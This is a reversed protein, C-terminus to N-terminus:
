LVALVERARNRLRKKAAADDDTPTGGVAPAAAADRASARAHYAELLMRTVYEPVRVAQIRVAAVINADDIAFAGAANRAVLVYDLERRRNTSMTHYPTTMIKTMTTFNVPLSGSVLAGFVADPEYTDAFFARIYDDDPLPTGPFAQTYAIVWAAGSTPTTSVDPLVINLPPPADRYFVRAVGRLVAIATERQAVILYAVTDSVFEPAFWTPRRLATRLTAFLMDRTAPLYLFAVAAETEVNDPARRQSVIKAFDGGEAALVFQVFRLWPASRPTHQYYNFVFIKLTRDNFFFAHALVHRYVFRAGLTKRALQFDAAVGDFFDLSTRAADNCYYAVIHYVDFIDVRALWAASFHRLATIFRTYQNTATMFHHRDYLAHPHVFTEFPLGAAAFARLVAELRVADLAHLITAAWRHREADSNVILMTNAFVRAFVRLDWGDDAAVRDTHLAYQARYRATDIDNGLQTREAVLRDREALLDPVFEESHLGLAVADYGYAGAGIQEADLTLVALVSARATDGAALAADRQQAIHRLFWVFFARRGFRVATVLVHEAAEQQLPDLLAARAVNELEYQGAAHAADLVALETHPFKTFTGPVLGADVYRAVGELVHPPTLYRGLRREAADTLFSLVGQRLVARFYAAVAASDADDVAEYDRIAGLVNSEVIADDRAYLPTDQATFDNTVVYAESLLLTDLALAGLTDELRGDRRLADRVPKTLLVEQLTSRCVHPPAPQKVVRKTAAVVSGSPFVRARAAAHARLLAAEM